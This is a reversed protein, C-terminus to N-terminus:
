LSSYIKKWNERIRVPTHKQANHLHTTITTELVNNEIDEVILNVAETPESYLSKPTLIDTAHGVKTSIVKCSAAAAELVAKPGGEMRSSILYLDIVNYLRNIEDLDLRNITVDDKDTEKGIFVYPINAQELKDRLWYRRPGALVVWIKPNETHAARVIEFFIDPGKVYKPTKLDHGETDRQFSGVLYADTPINYKKNFKEKLENTNSLRHFLTLDIPYPVYSCSINLSKLQNYNLQSQCVFLNITDIVQAIEPDAFMARVDHPIHAIIYKNKLKIYKIKPLAKWTVAHVVEAEALPSIIILPRLADKLLKEDDATAWGVSDAGTIFVKKM